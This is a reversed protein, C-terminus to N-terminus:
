QSEVTYSLKYPLNPSFDGSASNIQIFYRGDSVSPVRFQRPALVEGLPKVAESGDARFLGVRYDGPPTMDVRLTGGNAKVNIAYVDRHEFADLFGQVETDPTLMCPNGGRDNPEACPDDGARASAVGLILA